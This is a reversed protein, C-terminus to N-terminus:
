VLAQQRPNISLGTERVVLARFSHPAALVAIDCFHNRDGLYDQRGKCRRFMVERGPHICPISVQIYIEDGHLTIEGSVAPGAFNSRLDYQDPELGLHRAAVRLASRAERHFARKAEPDYGIGRRALAVLAPKLKLEDIKALCQRRLPLDEAFTEDPAHGLAIRGVHRALLITAPDRAPDIGANRADQMADVVAQTATAITALADPQLARRYRFDLDYNM